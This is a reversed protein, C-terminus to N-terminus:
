FKGWLLLILLGLMINKPSEAKISLSNLNWKKLAFDYKLNHDVNYQEGKNFYLM